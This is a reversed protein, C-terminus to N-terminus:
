LTTATLRGLALSLNIRAVERAASANVFADQDRAFATQANVVEVNDAIGTRYRERALDLEEQALDLALKATLVREVAAATKRLSLRVDEEIQMRTDALRARAADSHARAEVVEGSVARGSFIPVALTGGVSGVWEADSNPVNGSYAVEGDFAVSPLHRDQASALSQDESEVELRALKLEIRDRLAAAITEEEPAAGPESPPPPEALLVSTNLPLGILHKLRLLAEDFALRAEVIRLIEEAERTRARAVEIRAASGARHRETALTLLSKALQHGAEAAEIAKKERYAEIFSLAAAAAVQVATLDEASEAIQRDTKAARSRHWSALDLVRQTLTIRGDFVNWPGILGVNLFGLARMNQRFIRSQSVTGVIQPLLDAAEKMARGRAADNETRALKMRVNNAVALEMCRKMTLEGTPVDAAAPLTIILLLLAFFRKM